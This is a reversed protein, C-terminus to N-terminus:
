ASQLSLALMEIETDSANSSDNNFVIDKLTKTTGPIAVTYVFTGCAPTETVGANSWRDAPMFGPQGTPSANCWDDLQQTTNNSTGDTYNFTIDATGPGNGVSGLIALNKYKGAPVNQTFTGGEEPGINIASKVATKGGGTAPFWFNVGSATAVTDPKPWAPDTPDLCNGSQDFCPAPNTTNAVGFVQENYAICLMTWGGKTAAATGPKCNAGGGSSAATATSTTTTTGTTTANGAGGGSGCAALVMASALGLSGLLGLSQMRM